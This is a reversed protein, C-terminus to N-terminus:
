LIRKIGNQLDRKPIFIIINVLIIYRIIIFLIRLLTSVYRKRSTSIGLIGDIEANEYLFVTNVFSSDEDNIRYKSKCTM